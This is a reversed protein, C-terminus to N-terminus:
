RRASAPAARACAPAHRLLCRLRGARAAFIAIDEAASISATRPTSAAPSSATATWRRRPPSATAAGLDRRQGRSRRGHAPAARRRARQRGRGRRAAPRRLQRCLARAPRVVPHHPWRGLAAARHLCHSPRTRGRRAGRRRTARHRLRHRRAHRKRRGRRRDRRCLFVPRLFDDHRLAAMEACSLAVAPGIDGAEAVTRARPHLQVLGGHHPPEPRRRPRPLLMMASHTHANVLGPMVLHGTLDFVEDLRVPRSVIAAPGVSTIRGDRVAVFGGDLVRNEKDVTLVIGGRLLTSGM